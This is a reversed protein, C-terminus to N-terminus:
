QQQISNFSVKATQSSFLMGLTASTNSRFENKCLRMLFSSKGVAADGALITNRDLFCN